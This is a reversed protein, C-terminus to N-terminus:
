FSSTSSTSGSNAFVQKPPVLESRVFFLRPNCPGFFLLDLRSVDLRWAPEFPVRPVRAEPIQSSRSRLSSNRDSSSSGPIAHASSYFTSVPSTSDGRQNLLFEHFEHKRFKRLGAESPRTGIQRLLAPSQM